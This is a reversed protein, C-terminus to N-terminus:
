EWTHFIASIFKLFITIKRFRFFNLHSTIITSKRPTRDIANRDKKAKEMKSFFFEHMGKKIFADAENFANKASSSVREIVGESGSIITSVMKSVFSDVVEPLYDTLKKTYSQFIAAIKGPEKAKEAEKIEKTTEANIERIM